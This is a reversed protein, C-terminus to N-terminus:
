RKRRYTCYCLGEEAFSDVVEWEDEDWQPFFADGEVEDPIHTLEMIDTKPLALHYIETGGIVFMKAANAAECHARAEDLTSYTLVGNPVPYHPQRTLVINQRGSLPRRLSEFTKRGMVVPHGMTLRRFRQQDKPYSWPIRGMAGIIKNKSLAAIIITQM